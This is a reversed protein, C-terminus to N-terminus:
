SIVPSSPSKTDVDLKENILTNRIQTEAADKNGTAEYYNAM